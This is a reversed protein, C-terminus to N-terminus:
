KYIIYIYIQMDTIYIYTYTYLIHYAIICSNDVIKYLLISFSLWM